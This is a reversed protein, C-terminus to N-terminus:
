EGLSESFDAAAKLLNPFDSKEVWLERKSDGRPHPIVVYDTPQPDPNFSSKRPTHNRVYFRKSLPVDVKAAKCVDLLCQRDDTIEAPLTACFTEFDM